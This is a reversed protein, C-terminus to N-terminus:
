RPRGSNNTHGKDRQHEKTLKALKTPRPQKYKSIDEKKKIEDIKPLVSKNQKISEKSSGNNKSAQITKSAEKVMKAFKKEFEPVDKDSKFQMNTKLKLLSSAKGSSKAVNSKIPESQPRVTESKLSPLKVETSATKNPINREAQWKEFEQEGKSEAIRVEAKLAEAKLFGKKAIIKGKLLELDKQVKESSIMQSKPVQLSNPQLLNIRDKFESKNKLIQLHQKIDILEYPETIIVTISQDKSANIKDLSTEIKFTIDREGLITNIYEEYYELNADNFGNSTIIFRHGTELPIESNLGENNRTKHRISIEIKEDNEHDSFLIEYLENEYKDNEFIVESLQDAVETGINQVQSLNEIDAM